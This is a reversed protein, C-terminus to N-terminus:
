SRLRVSSGHLRVWGSVTMGALWPFMYSLFLSQDPPATLDNVLCGIAVVLTLIALGRWPGDASQSVAWSTVIIGLFWGLFIVLGPAGLAGVVKLYGAENGIGAWGVRGATNGTSGLGMGAPYERLVNLGETWREPRVRSSPDSLNATNRLFQNLPVPAFTRSSTSGGTRALLWPQETRLPIWGGWFLLSLTIATAVYPFLLRRRGVMWLVVLGQLFCVAITMRTFAFVLAAANVVVLLLSLRTWRAHLNLLSLPWLLLFPLAFGQGSLHISVARRVIQKGITQWYNPPLGGTDPYRLNLFAAFYKPIGIAMHWRTPVFFYELLGIASTVAGMALLVRFVLTLDRESVVMLRGIIYPVVYLMWDRAGYLSAVMGLSRSVFLDRFGLYLLVQLMWALAVADVWVIPPREKRTIAAGVLGALTALLLAEKWAALARLVPVPLGVYTLLIAIVFSHIPLLAIYVLLARIAWTSRRRPAPGADSEGPVVELHTDSHTFMM